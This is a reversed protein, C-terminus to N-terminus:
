RARGEGEKGIQVEAGPGDKGALLVRNKNLMFIQLSNQNTRLDM